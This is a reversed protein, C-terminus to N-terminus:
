NKVTSNYDPMYDAPDKALGMSIAEAKSKLFRNIEAYAAFRGSFNNIMGIYNDRAVLYHELHVAGIAAMAGTIISNSTRDGETPFMIGNASRHATIIVSARAKILADVIERPSMQASSFGEVDVGVVDILQMKNDFLMAAVTSADAKSFYDLFYTGVQTYTTFLSKRETDLEVGLISEVAGVSAILEAAREGVGAVSVLEEKDARLVADLSGFRHLLQKAIPNTDKYPIVYYLLMELLEYTDFIEAGYTILKARM